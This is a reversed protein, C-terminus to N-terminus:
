EKSVKKKNPTVTITFKNNGVANMVWLLSDGEKVDLQNVIGKPVTTRLSKSTNNAKSLVTPDGRVM